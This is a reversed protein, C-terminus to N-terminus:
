TAFVRSALVMNRRLLIDSLSRLACRKLTPASNRLDVSHPTSSLIRSATSLSASLPSSNSSSVSRRVGFSSRCRLRMAICACTAATISSILFLTPSTGLFMHASNWWSRSSDSARNGLLPRRTTAPRKMTRKMAGAMWAGCCCPRMSCGGDGGTMRAKRRRASTSRAMPSSWRKAARDGSSHTLTSTSDCDRLMRLTSTATDSELSSEHCCESGLSTLTSSFSTGSRSRTMTLLISIM